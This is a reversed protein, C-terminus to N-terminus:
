MRVMQACPIGDIRLVSEDNVLELDIACTVTKEGMMNAMTADKLAAEFEEFSAKEDGFFDSAVEIFLAGEEFTKGIIECDCAAVLVEGNVRYTKLYMTETIEDTM